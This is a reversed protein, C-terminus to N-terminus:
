VDSRELLNPDIYRHVVTGDWCVAVWQGKLPTFVITGSCHMDMSPILQIGKSTLKVRDGKAFKFAVPQRHIEERLQAMVDALQLQNDDAYARLEGYLHKSVMTTTRRKPDTIVMADSSEILVDKLTVAFQNVLSM